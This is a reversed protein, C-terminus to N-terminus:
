PRAPDWEGRSCVPSWTRVAALSRGWTGSVVTNRQDQGLGTLPDKEQTGSRGEQKMQKPARPSLQEVRIAWSVSGVQVDPEKTVM